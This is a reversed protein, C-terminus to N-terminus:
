ANRQIKDQIEKSTIDEVPIEKSINRLIKDEELNKSQYIKLM